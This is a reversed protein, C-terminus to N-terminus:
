RDFGRRSPWRVEFRVGGNARPFLNAAGEMTEAALRAAALGMGLHGPKSSRGIEFAKELDGAYGPGQDIIAVWYESDTAAWNMVVPPCSDAVSRSAEMANRLGNCLAISLLSRDGQVMFPARGACQVDIESQNGPTQVQESTRERAIVEAVVESLDFLELKPKATAARLNAIGELLRDLNDISVKTKSDAFNKLESLANLKLIGVIPSIEHLFLATTERVADIRAQKSVEDVGADDATAEAIQPQATDLFRLGALLANRIWVVDERRLATEISERDEGTANTQLFRAALLRLHTIPSSLLRLASPRDKVQPM